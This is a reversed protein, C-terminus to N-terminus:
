APVFPKSLELVREAARYWGQPAYSDDHLYCRGRALRSGATFTFHRSMPPCPVFSHYKSLQACNVFNTDWRREVHSRGSVIDDPYTHTHGGLWIDVSGPNEDLYREFRQAKPEDDIFYLYSAGEPM